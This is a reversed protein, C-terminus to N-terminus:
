FYREFRGTNEKEKLPFILQRENAANIQQKLELMRKTIEQVEYLFQDDYDMKESRHQLILIRLREQLQQHERALAKNLM